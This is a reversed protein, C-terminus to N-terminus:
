LSLFINQNTKKKKVLRIFAFSKGWDDNQLPLYSNLTNLHYFLIWIFLLM